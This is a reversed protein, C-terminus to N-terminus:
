MGNLTINQLIFQLLMKLYYSLTTDHYYYPLLMEYSVMKTKSFSGKTDMHKGQKKIGFM